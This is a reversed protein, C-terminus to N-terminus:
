GAVYQGGVGGRDGWGRESAYFVWQSAGHRSRPSVFSFRELIRMSGVGEEYTRGIIVM